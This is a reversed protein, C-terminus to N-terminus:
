RGIPCICAATGTGFVELVQGNRGREELESLLIQRESVIIKYSSPIFPLSIEGAAHQRALTLVSDRQHGRRRFADAYDLNRETSVDRSVTVGPLITDTELTPTALEVEMEGEGDAGRGDKNLFVIFLNM